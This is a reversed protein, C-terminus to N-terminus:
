LSQPEREPYEKNYQEWMMETFKKSAEELKEDYVKKDKKLDAEHGLNTSFKRIKSGDTEIWYARAVSYRVGTPKHRHFGIAFKPDIMLRVKDIQNRRAQIYNYLVLPDVVNGERDVVPEAKKFDRRFEEKLKNLLVFLYEKTPDNEPHHEFGDEKLWSEFDEKPLLDGGILLLLGKCSAALVLELM